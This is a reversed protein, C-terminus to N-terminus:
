LLESIQYAECVWSINLCDWNQWIEAAIRSLEIQPYKWEGQMHTYRKLIFMCWKLNEHDIIINMGYKPKKYASM